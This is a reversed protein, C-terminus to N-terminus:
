SIKKLYVSGLNDKGPLAKLRTRLEMPKGADSSKLTFEYLPEPYHRAVRSIRTPKSGWYSYPKTNDPHARCVIRGGSGKLGLGRLYVADKGGHCEFTLRYKGAEAPAMFTWANPKGQRSLNLPKWRGVAEGANRFQIGAARLRKKHVFLRKEFDAYDKRSQETWLNEALACLRPWAQFDARQTTPVGETWLPAEGGLIRKVGPGRLGAPRLDYSYLQWTNNSSNAHDLYVSTHPSSIINHGDRAADRSAKPNVWWHVIADGPVGGEHIEDWGVMRKGLSKLKKQIRRLFWSQLEKEDKLGEARMRSQCLPHNHWREKPCEDGGIHFYPSPFLAAVEELVDELFKFTSEKGPCYVDKFIGWGAEVKYPGGTCGLNPYAALAASSHGPIEIEPIVTIYRAKAYALVEKVQKQTYFGGYRKKGDMRWAGVSTLKPYKKIEIRWAQDETLHWHFRNLKHSAIRDIEKLIYSVPFFHRCTDLMFGRWAYRPKDEIILGPLVPSQDLLQRLTQIGYFLGAGEQAQLEIGAAGISLRYGEPGLSRSSKHLTLRISGKDPQGSIRLYGKLTRALAQTEANNPHLIFPTSRSAKFTGATRTIKQPLPLLALNEPPSGKENL